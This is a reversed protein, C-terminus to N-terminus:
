KVLEDLTINLAKAINVAKELSPTRLNNIYKSIASETCKSRLALEKQSYGKKFMFHLINNGINM